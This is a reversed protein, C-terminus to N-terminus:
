LEKRRRKNSIADESVLPRRRSFSMSSPNVFLLDQSRANDEPASISRLLIRGQSVISVERPQQAEDFIFSHPPLPESFEM